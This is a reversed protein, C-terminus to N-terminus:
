DLGLGRKMEDVAVRRMSIANKEDATMEAFTKDYGAPVFIPDYGFGENGREELPLTGSVTGTFVRVGDEDAYGIATTVDVNRDTLSVAMKLLGKTGVTKLFWAILAGPLGNWEHVNFGTDDVMVPRKLLDYAEEAKSWAVDAVSLAQVETLDLKQHDIPLGLLESFERAKGSNGTILCINPISDNM